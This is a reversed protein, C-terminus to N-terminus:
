PPGPANAQTCRWLRQSWPGGLSPTNPPEVHCNKKDSTDITGRGGCGCSVATGRPLAPSAPKLPCGGGWTRNALWSPSVIHLTWSRISWDHIWLCRRAPVQSAFPILGGRRCLRVRMLRSIIKMRPIVEICSIIEHTNDKRVHYAKTCSAVNRRVDILDRCKLSLSRRPPLSRGVLAQPLGSCQPLPPPLPHHPLIVRVTIAFMPSHPPPPPPPGSPWTGPTARCHSPSPHSRNCM